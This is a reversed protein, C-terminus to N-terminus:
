HTNASTIDVMDSDRDGGDIFHRVYKSGMKGVQKVKDVESGYKNDYDVVDMNYLDNTLRGRRQNNTKSNRKYREFDVDNPNNATIITNAAIKSYNAICMSRGKEYNAESEWLIENNMEVNPNHKSNSQEMFIGYSENSQVISDRLDDMDRSAMKRNISCMQEIILPDIIIKDMKTSDLVPQMVKYPSQEAKLLSHSDPARTEDTERSQIGSLDKATLKRSRTIQNDKSQSLLVTRGSEMDSYKKRAMDIMKLSLTKPINQDKWSLFVDHEVRANSRNKAWNQVELPANSRIQGYKAVKFVHDTTRRWGISTNNSLDNIVNSRNYCMEDQMIPKREDTEQMCIGTSTIMTQKTGGNHRSDMSEDFIKMRSKTNYFQNRMDKVLHTPNWGSSPVSHDEDNGQKIFKGRVEQQGRYKMMDPGIATGRPDKVTFEYDIFTGEPLYPEATVRRGHHRLNLRDSSYNNYRPTDSEFFPKDPRRDKLTNRFHNNLQDPDEFVCTQEYKKLYVSEPIISGSGVISHRSM